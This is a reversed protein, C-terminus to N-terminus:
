AQTGCSSLGYAAVLSAWLVHLRHKAVLSYARSAAALSIGLAAVLVWPLWFYIIKKSLDFM